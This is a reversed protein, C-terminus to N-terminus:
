FSLTIKILNKCADVSKIIFKRKKEKGKELKQSVIM